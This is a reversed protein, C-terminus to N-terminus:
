ILSQEQLWQVFERVQSRLDEEAAEKSTINTNYFVGISKGDADALLSQELKEGFAKAYAGSADPHEGIHQYLEDASVYEFGVSAEEDYGDTEYDMKETDFIIKGSDSWNYGSPVEVDPIVPGPQEFHLGNKTGEDIIIQLAEEESFTVTPAPVEGATQGRDCGTLLVAMAAPVLAFVAAKTQWRKPLKKLLEPHLLVAEKEPYRPRAYHIVPKIKM